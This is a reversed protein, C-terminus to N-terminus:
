GYRAARQAFCRTSFLVARPFRELGHSEAMRRVEAVTRSRERGHVMCFLNFPWDPPVRPRRYCLTVASDAALRAGAAAVESDPVDWVVM